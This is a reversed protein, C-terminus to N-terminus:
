PGPAQRSEAELEALHDISPREEPDVEAPAFWADLLAPVDEPRTRLLSLCLINADNWMRAGRVIEPDACLAARIGPVKNAAISVGTGTYCCLIGSDARGEAVDRAVAEAVWAWPLAEGGPRGRVAVEIGRRRLEALIADTVPTTDDAGFSVKM